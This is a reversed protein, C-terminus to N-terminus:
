VGFRGGSDAIGGVGKVFPPSNSVTGRNVAIPRRGENKGEMVYQHFLRQAEDPEPSFMGLVYGMKLWKPCKELGLYERHSSWVSDAADAVVGARVPNNHVYRVLELLYSEEEVLISKYRDAFM